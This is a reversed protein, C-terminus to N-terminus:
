FDLRPTTETVRATTPTVPWLTAIEDALSAVLKPVDAAATEHLAEAVIVVSATAPRVASRGSQRNTWRRAHARGAEDAYTVEGPAPHEIDGGFTEYEETGDAPRVTLGGTVAALDLAAVPIAFAASVANCLDVLPHISPLSGEKRVRRLLAESACRYQTPKLGMGAFTRRWARIEPLEAESGDRALRDLAAATFDAVRARADADPTIGDAVVVVGAVLDPHAAWLQPSHQFYMTGRGDPAETPM